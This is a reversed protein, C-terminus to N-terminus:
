EELVQEVDQSPVASFESFSMEFTGRGQTMSRLSSLYGVMKRLPVKAELQVQAGQQDEHKSMYMTHDVPTWLNAAMTHYDVGDGNEGNVTNENDSLGGITGRRTTTLDTMVTGVASQPASVQVSMVPELLEFDSPNLTENLANSTANRILESVLEPASAEPGIEVSINFDLGFLASRGLQGGRALVPIIGVSVADNVAPFEINHHRKFRTFVRNSDILEKGKSTTADLTNDSRPSISVSVKTTAGNSDTGELAELSNVGSKLTEKYTIMVDGIDVRAKLDELLRNTAIELHLEGMGSLLHQGAEEDYSLQLSPDERLLIDLAANMGRTDGPGKPSIRVVFVPPPVDIPQLSLEKDEKRLSSVGNLKSPHAVLTDGTRIGSTGGLVAIEGAHASTIEEPEDAQMRLLRTIRESQKNSSNYVTANKKLVGSYIRVFVLTGRQPDQRVKFALMRVVDANTNTTKAPTPGDSTTRTESENPAPLYQIAADLLPQIGINRFSSGCLVPVIKNAISAKRLAAVLQENPVDDHEVFTELVEPDVDSIQEILATRAEMAEDAQPTESCPKVEVQKGDESKYVIRQGHLVDIIGCFTEGEFYPINLMAVPTQLKTVAEKITRSFGAGARDMKNIYLIRPIQLQSTLGWVKETLAEVGAVSDLITIAGDLVRLSRVVEFNFDAHGPTDILNIQYDNWNFTIAASQITIGREREAELYDTVTDGSDVNGLRKTVGAYYLMRETTTTKGADIHAIIGLNRIRSDNSVFRRGVATKLATQRPWLRGLLFPRM